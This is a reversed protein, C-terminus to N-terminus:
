VFVYILQFPEYLCPEKEQQMHMMMRAHLTSLYNSSLFCCFTHPRPFCTSPKRQKLQGEDALLFTILWFCAAMMQDTANLQHKDGCHQMYKPASFKLEEQLSIAVNQEVISQTIIREIDAYTIKRWKINHPLCYYVCILMSINLPDEAKSNFKCYGEGRFICGHAGRAKTSPRKTKTSQKQRVEGTPTVSQWHINVMVGVSRFTSHFNMSLADPSHGFYWEIQVAGILFLWLNHQTCCVWLCCSSQRFGCKYKVM